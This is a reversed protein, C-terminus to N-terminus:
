RFTMQEQDSFFATTLVLSAGSQAPLVNTRNLRNATNEWGGNEASPNSNWFKYEMVAGNADATDNVTGSYLKNNVQDAPNNTLNYTGWGNFTGRASITDIGPRFAGASVQVGMDVKFTVVTNANSLHPVAAALILFCRSSNRWSLM